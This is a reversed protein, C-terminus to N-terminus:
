NRIMGFTKALAVQLVGRKAPGKYLLKKVMQRLRWEVRYFSRCLRAGGRHRILWALPLLSPFSGYKPLFGLLERAEDPGCLAANHLLYRVQHRRAKQMLREKGPVGPPWLRDMDELHQLHAQVRLLLLNSKGEAHCRYHALVEDHYSVGGIRLLDRM